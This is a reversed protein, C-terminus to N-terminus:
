NLRSPEQGLRLRATMERLPVERMSRRSKTQITRTGVEPQVAPAAATRLPLPVLKVGMLKEKELTEKVSSRSTEPVAGLVTDHEETAIQGKSGAPERFHGEGLSHREWEVPDESQGGTAKLVPLAAVPYDTAKLVTSGAVQPQKIPSSHTDQTTVETEPKGSTARVEGYREAEDKEKRSELQGGTAKLVSSVTSQCETAKLVTTGAAEQLPVPKPTVSGVKGSTISGPAVRCGRKAEVVDITEQSTANRTVNDKICLGLEQRTRIMIEKGPMRVVPKRFTEKSDNAAAKLAAEESLAVRTVQLDSEESEFDYDLWSNVDSLLDLESLYPEQRFTGTLQPEPTNLQRNEKEEIEDEKHMCTNELGSILEQFEKEMGIDMNHPEMGRLLYSICDKKTVTCHSDLVTATESGHPWSPLQQIEQQGKSRNDTELRSYLGLKTGSSAIKAMKNNIEMVDESIRGRTAMRHCLYQGYRDPPHITRRPRGSISQEKGSTSENKGSTSMELSPAEPLAPIGIEESEPNDDSSEGETAQDELDKDTLNEEQPEEERATNGSTSEGQEVGKEHTNPVESNQEAPPVLVEPEEPQTPPRRRRAVTGKMNPRLSPEVTAPAQGEQEECLTYLKLRRENQRSKQGQYEIDYTHNDHCEKVVYPGVFKPQLKPHAGKRRRKNELLVLDGEKFLPPEESDEQRIDQQQDRLVEYAEELREKVKLVYEHTAQGAELPVQCQLQDPLRLERGFMLMNATEKTASHPTGRFARMIQPLLLDWEEQGRSLLLARLSDGLGRNNREVVGNAQPHYPTTRTKQVNWMLCLEMMLQSEFQAGQDTHLQEPLGFYSFCREDLTSAVTPATADPIAIADQWRTFHDTLVLIWRNGKSTEPMPGVLDVAVRQWPRGAYLRQRATPSKLGGHKATQCVECTKIARRVAATMGPWYWTLQLRSLTRCMGSHALKHTEWIVTGRLSRPCVACWRVKEQINLRLELVGERNIRLSNRRQYLMRLESDGTQLEEEALDANDRVVQYMKSVASEGTQQERPLELPLAQENFLVKSVQMPDRSDLLDGSFEEFPERQNWLSEQKSEELDALELDLEQRSPGGDRKEIAACQRCDYCLSRRSLGDANGHRPGARHELTYQFEALIELWRAVQASPEKRRCLWRLSAHDTRLTFAQGYLYPRFNKVAMVVALLERRTVCYNRQAPDLTKSYYAIAREQGEQVQSLVAGVGVASADTDLIYRKTPDPYGLVPATILGEKLKEFSEQTEHDWRWPTEKRTLSTLPKALTAYDRLYQRYYGATGLFAQLEKLDKPPSWQKIASIKLPDTAVGEASVIHGLYRVAQRFLECKSPKLKLGATKLRSLVEGLRELHTDFDPAIVIVDDLYLLLTKWHLGVLVREMLRQFTAPASTLGFPLVKWKFLGNRTIFASKEKADEDMPVQWYGSTLDLTSFFKSGALADLSEDIWPILYADQQTVANLRRYDICFRWSDDKKKVLVVPSSWAGSAPEILGKKLLEQVQREAEMEKVPGLRHPPQRIPRTGEVVPISHKVLTTHGIDGDERSFVDEYKELLKALKACQAASQCGQCATEYLKRVHEPVGSLETKSFPGEEGAKQEPGPLQAGHRQSQVDQEEIGTFTAVTTGARVVRVSNTANLCRVIVQRRDDPKNLSTAIPLEASRGEIIGLPFHKEASVRCRIAAETGPELTVNRLVQVSSTLSRGFRDTCPLERGELTVVPRDFRMTCDRAALFPMGLIADESIQSVVFVEEFPVSRLRGTVQLIGYFPLKTGDAMLGHSTCDEVRERVKEPLRDFVQKSLLNTNCGTDILFQIPKREIRGPLFYSSKFPKQLLQAAYVEEDETEPELQRPTPQVGKTSKKTQKTSPVLPERDELEAPTDSESEAPDDHSLVEYYNHSTVGTSPEQDKVSRQTRKPLQWEGITAAKGRDM